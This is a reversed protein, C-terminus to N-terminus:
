HTAHILSYNISILITFCILADINISLRVVCIFVYQIGFVCFLKIM